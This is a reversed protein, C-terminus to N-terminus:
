ICRTLEYTDKLSPFCLTGLQQRLNWYANLLENLEAEHLRVSEAMRHEAEDAEKRISEVERDNERREVSLEAYEHQLRELTLASAARKDAAQREARGLKQQANIRQQEVRQLTVLDAAALTQSFYSSRM